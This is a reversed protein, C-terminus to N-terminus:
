WVAARKPSSGSLGPHCPKPTQHPKNRPQTTIELLSSGPECAPIVRNKQDTTTQKQKALVMEGITKGM